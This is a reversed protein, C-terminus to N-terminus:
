YHRSKKNEVHKVSGDKELQLVGNDVLFRIFDLVKVEDFESCQALVEKMSWATEGMVSQLKEEISDYLEKNAQKRGIEMLQNYKEKRVDHLMDWILSREERFLEVKVPKGWESIWAM